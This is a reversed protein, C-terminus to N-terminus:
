PVVSRRFQCSPHRSSSPGHLTQEAAYLYMRVYMIVYMCVFKYMHVPTYLCFDIYLYTYIYMIPTPTVIIRIYM